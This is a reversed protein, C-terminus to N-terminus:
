PLLLERLVPYDTTALQTLERKADLYPIDGHLNRMKQLTVRAGEIDGHLAQALAYRYLSPSFGYRYAVKRMWEIEDASMGPRPTSLAFHHFAALQTFQTSIFPPAQSVMPRGIRAVAFRMDRFEEEVRWYDIAAFATVAAFLAIAGWGAARPLTCVTSAASDEALIGLAIGFPVLFYLYDLPFEVMSHALLLGVVLASFAGNVSRIRPLTRLFWWAASGLILVALPVGNWLALDLLLNHSHEVLRSQPGDGAVMMQAVSVQNWGFGTWPRLWLADWLQSWIVTRPGARMRDATSALLPQQGMADVVRPWILFLAAWAAALGGIAWRTTRLGLRRALGIHWLTAVGFLLLATRSQTMAMTFVLLLAAALAWVGSVRRKEYLVMLGALGVGLLSVLQNPQALNAFPPHGRPVAAIYLFLAGVDIQWFQLLAVVSSLLAGALLVASFLVVWAEDIAAARASWLVAWAGCLLYLAAIWGDGAFFIQGTAAQLLPVVALAALFLAAAPVGIRAQQAQGMGAVALMGAALAALLESHSVVWPPYHNAVLWAAVLLLSCCNLALRTM